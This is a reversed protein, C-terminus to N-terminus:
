HSPVVPRHTVLEQPARPTTSPEHLGFREHVRRLAAPAWWNVGGILKMTAPVLLIRVVTKLARETSARPM